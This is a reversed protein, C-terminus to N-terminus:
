FCVVGAQVKRVQAEGEKCYSRANAPNLAYRPRQPLQMHVLRRHHIIPAHPPVYHICQSLLSGVPSACIRRRDNRCRCRYEGNGIDSRIHVGSAGLTLGGKNGLRARRLQEKERAPDLAMSLQGGDSSYSSLDFSALVPEIISRRANQVLQQTPSLISRQTPSPQSRAYHM